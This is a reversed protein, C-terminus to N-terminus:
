RPVLGHALSYRTAEVRGAIGLKVYINALHREVTSVSIHLTEAMARNSTGQSIHRLIEVQRPTLQDPWPGLMAQDFAALAGRVEALRQESAIAVALTEARRLQRVAEPGRDLDRLVEAQQCLVGIVDHPGGSEQYGALASDYFEMAAELDGRLRAVDARNCDITALLQGDGLDAALVQAEELYSTALETSRLKVLVDSLNAMGIARARPDGLQRKIVLAAEFLRRAETLDGDDLAVLGLNNLASAIGPLDDLARRHGLALEFNQRAVGRQGAYRQASALATAAKASGVRDGRSQYATLALQAQEAARVYDGSETALAAAASRAPAVERADLGVSRDLFVALWRQGEELHGSTLWWWWLDAGMRLGFTVDGTRDAWDLAADLDRASRNMTAAWIARSAGVLGEHSRAALGAFHAAHRAHSVAQGRPQRCRAVYERVVSPARFANEDGGPEVALFGAEVLRRVRDLLGDESSDAVAAADRLRFPGVFVVLVDLLRQEGEGLLGHSAALAATLESRGRRDTSSLASPYLLDPWREVIQAVSLTATWRALLELALPFGEVAECLSVVHSANEEGLVFGPDVACAREVFLRIVAADRVESLSWNAAPRPLAPVVWIREGRVELPQRSTVLLRPGSRDSLLAPLVERVVDLAGDASDLVLLAGDVDALFAIAAELADPGRQRRVDVFAVPGGWRQAAEICLRSKGVGALGTVTVFGDVALAAILDSVCQDLEVYSTPVKPVAYTEAAPVTPTPRELAEFRDRTRASMGSHGGEWRNVTAFSVDLLRALQEQSVGLRDRLGRVRLPLATDV